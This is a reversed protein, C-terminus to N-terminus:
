LVELSQLLDVMKDASSSAIFVPSAFREPCFFCLALLRSPSWLHVEFSLATYYSGLCGRALSTCLWSLLSYANSLLIVSQQIGDCQPIAPFSSASLCAFVALLFCSAGANSALKGTTAFSRFAYM